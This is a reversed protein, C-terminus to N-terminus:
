RVLHGVGVVRAQLEENLGPPVPPFQQGPPPRLGPPFQAYVDYSAITNPNDVIRISNWLQPTSASILVIGTISFILARDGKWINYMNKHCSLQMPKYKEVNDYDNLDL